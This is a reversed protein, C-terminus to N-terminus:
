GEAPHPVGQEVEDKEAHRLYMLAMDYASMLGATAAHEALERIESMVSAVRAAREHDM